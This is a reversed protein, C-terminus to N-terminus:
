NAIPMHHGILMKINNKLTVENSCSKKKENDKEVITQANRDM